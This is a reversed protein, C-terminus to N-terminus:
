YMFRTPFNLFHPKVHRCVLLMFGSTVFSVSLVDVGVGPCGCLSCRHQHQAGHKSSVSKTNSCIYVICYVNKLYYENSITLRDHLAGTITHFPQAAFAEATILLIVYYFQVFPEQEGGHM